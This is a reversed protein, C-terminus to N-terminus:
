LYPVPSFHIWHKPRLDWKRGPCSQLGSHGLVFQPSEWGRFIGLVQDGSGTVAVRCPLYSLPCPGQCSSFLRDSEPPSWRAGLTTLLPSYKWSLSLPIHPHFIPLSIHHPFNAKSVKFISSPPWLWLFQASVLLPLSLQEQLLNLFFM